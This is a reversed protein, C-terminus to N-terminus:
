PSFVPELGTPTVLALCFNATKQPNGRYRSRGGWVNGWVINSSEHGSALQVDYVVMYRATGIGLCSQFPTAGKLKVPM